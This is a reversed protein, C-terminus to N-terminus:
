PSRRSISGSFKGSKSKSQAPNGQWLKETAPRLSPKWSVLPVTKKSIALIMASFRGGNKSKSFTGPKNDCSPPLVSVAMKEVSTSIAEPDSSAMSVRMAEEMDKRVEAPTVGHEKAIQRIIRKLNM